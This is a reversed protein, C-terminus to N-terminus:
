NGRVVVPLSTRSRATSRSAVEHVRTAFGASAQGIAAVALVVGHVDLHALAADPAGPVPGPVGLTSPDSDPMPVERRLGDGRLGTGFAKGIAEKATWLRLFAPAPDDLGALWEVEEPRFWRRAMATVPVTRLPEVDVGVLLTRSAAVVAVGDCHSVSVALRDDGRLVWPRGGQDHRVALTDRPGGLLAAGAEVLLDRAAVREGGAGRRIWLEVQEQVQERGDALDVPDRDSGPPVDM